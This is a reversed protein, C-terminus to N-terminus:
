CEDLTLELENEKDLSTNLKQLAVSNYGNSTIGKNRYSGNFESRQSADISQNLKISEYIPKKGRLLSQYVKNGISIAKKSINSM